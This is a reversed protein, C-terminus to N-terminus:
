AANCERANAIRERVPLALMKDPANLSRRTCAPNLVLGAGLFWQQFGPTNHEKGFWSTAYGNEKLIEAITANEPGIISDYGPYGTSVEAGDGFCRGIVRAVVADNGPVLRGYAPDQLFVAVHCRPEALIV